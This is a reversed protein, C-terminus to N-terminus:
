EGERVPLYFPCFEFATVFYFPHSQVARNVTVPEFGIRLRVGEFRESGDSVNGRCKVSDKCDEAKLRLITNTPM